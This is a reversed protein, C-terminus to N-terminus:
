LHRVEELRSSLSDKIRVELRAEHEHEASSTSDEPDNVLQLGFAQLIVQSRESSIVHCLRMEGVTEGVPTVGPRSEFM